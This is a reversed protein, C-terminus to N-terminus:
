EHHDEEHEIKILSNRYQMWAPLVTCIANGIDKLYQGASQVSYHQFRGRHDEIIRQLNAYATDQHRRIDTETSLGFRRETLMFQFYATLMQYHPLLVKRDESLPATKHLAQCTEIVSVRYLVEQYQWLTDPTLAAAEISQRMTSYYELVTQRKQQM